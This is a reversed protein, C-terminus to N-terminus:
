EHATQKRKKQQQQRQKHRQRRQQQEAARKRYNRLQIRRKSCIQISIILFWKSPMRDFYRSQMIMEASHFHFFRIPLSRKSISVFIERSISDFVIENM